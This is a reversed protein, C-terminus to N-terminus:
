EEFKINNEQVIRRWRDLESIILKRFVAGSAGIPSNGSKVLADSVEPSKVAAIFEAELKRQIAAPLGRPAMYGTWPAYEYGPLLSEDVTPLDPL